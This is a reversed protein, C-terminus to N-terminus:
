GSLDLLRAKLQNAYLDAATASTRLFLEPEILELEMIVPGHETAVLDVRAYACSVPVARLARYAVDLEQKTPEHNHVTGGYDDQVRYDGAAPQKRIAHSLVGNFFIISVEGFEAVSRLLPQILVDGNTILEEIHRHLVPDSRKARLVGVAGASVAPKVVLEESDFSNHLDFDLQHDQASILKTPVIPVGHRKLDLLYRKSSNWEIVSAPNQLQTARDVSHVWKLFEPLRSFYDWPTRIVVLPIKAWDIPEDWPITAAPIDLKALAKVLAPSEEDPKSMQGGVAFAIQPMEPYPM